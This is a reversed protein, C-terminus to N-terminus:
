TLRRHRRASHRLEHARRRAAVGAALAAGAGALLGVAVRRPLPKARLALPALLPRAKSSMWLLTGSGPCALELDVWSQPLGLEIGRWGDAFAALLHPRRDIGRGVTRRGSQEMLAEIAAHLTPAHTWMAYFAVRGDADILYSPDSLGGYAQHVTGDLDDVLVPWPIKEKEAYWHADDLKDAFARYPPVGPGPHAQRVMVDM